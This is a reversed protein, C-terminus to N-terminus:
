KARGRARQHEAEHVFQGNPSHLRFPVADRAHREAAACFSVLASLFGIIWPLYHIDWKLHAATAVTIATGCNEQLWDRDLADDETSCWSMYLWIRCGTLSCLDDHIKQLCAFCPKMSPNNVWMYRLHPNQAFARPQIVRLNCNMITRFYLFLSYLHCHKSVSLFFCQLHLWTWSYSSWTQKNEEGVGKKKHM